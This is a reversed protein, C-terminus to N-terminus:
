KAKKAPKGADGNDDEAPAPSVSLQPENTIAEKQEATLDSEDVIVGERTFKIGARWFSDRASRIRVKM